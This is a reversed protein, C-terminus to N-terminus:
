KIISNLMNFATNEIEYCKLINEWLGKLRQEKELGLIIVEADLSNDLSIWHDQGPPIRM